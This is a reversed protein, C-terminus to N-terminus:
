STAMAAPSVVPVSVIVFGFPSSTYASAELRVAVNFLMVPPLKSFVLRLVVAAVSFMASVVSTVFTVIALLPSM